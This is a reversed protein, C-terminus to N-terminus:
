GEIWAKFASSKESSVIVDIPSRPDLELKLRSKSLTHILKIRDIRVIYQRNARFFVEPNVASEIDALPQDLPYRKGDLHMLFSIKDESFFYAIEEVPVIKTKRGVRTVFRKRYHLPSVQRVLQEIKLSETSDHKYFRGFKELARALEERKIPKLLYDIANVRFADLVYENYATTFLVPFDVRYNDFIEFSTGDALEIDVFALDVQSVDHRGLWILSEEVSELSALVEVDEQLERILREIRRAATPEDEIILIRM